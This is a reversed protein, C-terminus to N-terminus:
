NWRTTLSRLTPLHKFAAVTSPSVSRLFYLAGITAMVWGASLALMGKEVSYNGGILFFFSLLINVALGIMLAKLNYHFRGDASMRYSIILYISYIGLGPLLIMIYAKMGGFQPGFLFTWFGDPLLLMGLCAIGMLLINGWWAKRFFQDKKGVDHERSSLSYFVQGISGPVLLMAEGLTLANSLLGLGTAPMLFFILRGHLLGAVHALQNLLGYHFVERRTGKEGGSPMVVRDRALLVAGVGFALAWSIFLALLYSKRSHHGLHWLLWFSFCALAPVALVMFNFRVFKKLGLLLHQQMTWSSHVWSALCLLLAEKAQLPSFLYFCFPVLVSPFVAWLMQGKMLRVPHHRNLLWASTAGGAIDSIGAVLAIIVLYLGCIGREAPGLWRSVVVILGFYLLASVARSLFTFGA